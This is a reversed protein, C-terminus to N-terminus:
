AMPESAQECLLIATLFPISAWGASTTANSGNKTRRRDFNMFWRLMGSRHNSCDGIARAAICSGFILFGGGSLLNSLSLRGIQTQHSLRSRQFAPHPYSPAPRNQEISCAAFHPLMLADAQESSYANVSSLLSAPAHGALVGIGEVAIAILFRRWIPGPDRIAHGHDRTAAAPWADAEVVRRGGRVGAPDKSHSIEGRAVAGIDAVVNEPSQLNAPVRYGTCPLMRSCRVRMPLIILIV